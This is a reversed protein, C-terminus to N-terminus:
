QVMRRVTKSSSSKPRPVAAESIEALWSWNRVSARKEWTIESSARVSLTIASLHSTVPASTSPESSAPAM